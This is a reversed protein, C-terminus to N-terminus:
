LVSPATLDPRLPRTAASLYARAPRPVAFRNISTYVQYTLGFYDYEATVVYTGHSVDEFVPSDQFARGSISYRFPGIGGFPYVVLQYRTGDCFTDPVLDATAVVRFALPAYIERSRTCGRSDRAQVTYNQGGSVWTSTGHIVTNFWMDEGVRWEFISYTRSFYLYAAQNERQQPSIISLDDLVTFEYSPVNVQFTRSTGIADVVSIDYAGPVLNEFVYETQFLLLNITGLTVNYPMAGYAFRATIKGNGPSMGACAAASAWADVTVLSNIQFESVITCGFPDSVQISYLGLPLQTFTNNTQERVVLRDSSVLRFTTGVGGNVIRIVASGDDAGFSSVNRLSISTINVSAALAVTANVVTSVGRRDTVLISRDGVAVDTIVNGSQASREFEGPFPFLRYSYPEDGGSVNVTIRGARSCTPVVNTVNAIV